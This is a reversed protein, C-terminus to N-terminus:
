VGAEGAGERGEDELLGLLLSPSQYVTTFVHARSIALCRAGEREDAKVVGEAGRGFLVGEAGAITRSIGDSELRGSVVVYLRSAKQDRRLVVEGPGFERQVAVRALVALESQHLRRFCPASRLAFLREVVTMEPM